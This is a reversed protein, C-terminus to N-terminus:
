SMSNKHNYAIYVVITSIAEFVNKASTRPPPNQSGQTGSDGNKLRLLENKDGSEYPEPVWSLKQSAHIGLEISSSASVMSAQFTSTIVKLPKM